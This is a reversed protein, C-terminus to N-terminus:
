NKYTVMLQSNLRQARMRIEEQQQLRFLDWSTMPRGPTNYWPRSGVSRSRNPSVSHLARAQTNIDDATTTTLTMPDYPNWLLDHITDEVNPNEIWDVDQSDADLSAMPFQPEPIVSNTMSSPLVVEVLSEDSDQEETKQEEHEQTHVGPVVPQEVFAEDQEFSLTVCDDVTTSIQVDSSSVQDDDEEDMPLARPQLNGTISYSNTPLRPPLHEPLRSPPPPVDTPAFGGSIPNVPASPNSYLEQATSNQSRSRLETLLYKTLRLSEVQSEKLPTFELNQRMM